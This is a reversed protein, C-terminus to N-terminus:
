KPLTDESRLMALLIVVNKVGNPVVNGIPEAKGASFKGECGLQCSGRLCGMQM